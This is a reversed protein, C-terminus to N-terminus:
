ADPALTLKAFAAVAGAGSLTATGINNPDISQMVGARLQKSLTAPPVAVFFAFGTTLDRDSAGKTERRVITGAKISTIEEPSYGTDKLLADLTPLAALAPSASLFLLPVAARVVRLM